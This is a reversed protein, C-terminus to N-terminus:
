LLKLRHIYSGQFWLLYLSPIMTIYPGVEDRSSARPVLNHMAAPTLRRLAISPHRLKDLIDDVAVFSHVLYFYYKAIPNKGQSFPKYKAVDGSTERSVVNKPRPCFNWM